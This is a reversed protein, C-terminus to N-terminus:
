CQHKSKKWTGCREARVLARKNYPTQQAHHSDHASLMMVGESRTTNWIARDEPDDSPRRKNDIWGQLEFLRRKKLLLLQNINRLGYYESASINVLANCSPVAPLRVHLEEPWASTTGMATQVTSHGLLLVALFAAIHVVDSRM